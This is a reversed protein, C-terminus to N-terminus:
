KTPFRRLEMRVISWDFATLGPSGGVVVCSKEGVQLLADCHVYELDVGYLDLRIEDSTIEWAVGIAGASYRSVPVM